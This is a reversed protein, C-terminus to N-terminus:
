GGKKEKISDVIHHLTKDAHDLLDNAKKILHDEYAADLLDNCTQLLDILRDLTEETENKSM